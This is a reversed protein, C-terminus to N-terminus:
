TMTRRVLELGELEVLVELLERTDSGPASFTAVLTSTAANARGLVHRVRDALEDIHAPGQGLAKITEGALCSLRYTAATSDSRVM